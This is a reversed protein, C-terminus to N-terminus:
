ADLGATQRLTRVFFFATSPARGTQYRDDIMGELIFRRTPSAHGVSQIPSWFNITLSSATVNERFTTENDPGLRINKACLDCLNRLPRPAALEM